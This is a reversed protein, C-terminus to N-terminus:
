TRTLVADIVAWILPIIILCINQLVQCADTNFVDRVDLINSEQSICLFVAVYM